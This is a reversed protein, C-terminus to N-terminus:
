ELSCCLVYVHILERISVVACCSGTGDVVALSAVVRLDVRLSSVGRWSFM